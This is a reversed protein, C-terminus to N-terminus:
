TIELTSGIQIYGADTNVIQFQNIATGTTLLAFMADFINSDEYRCLIQNRICVLNYDTITQTLHAETISDNDIFRNVYSEYDMLLDILASLDFLENPLCKSDKGIVDIKYINDIRSKAYGKGTSWNYIVGMLSNYLTDEDTMIYTTSDVVNSYNSGTFVNLYNVTTYLPM